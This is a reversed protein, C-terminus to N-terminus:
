SWGGLALVDAGEKRGPTQEPMDPAERRRIEQQFELLIREKAILMVRDKRAIGVASQVPMRPHLLEGLASDYCSSIEGMVLNELFRADQQAQEQFLAARVNEYSCDMFVKLFAELNQLRERIAELTSLDWDKLRGAFDPREEDRIMSLLEIKRAACMEGLLLQSQALGAGELVADVAAEATCSLYAELSKELHDEEAAQEAPLASTQRPAPCGCLLLILALACGMIKM